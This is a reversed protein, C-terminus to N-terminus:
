NAMHWNSKINEEQSDLKSNFHINFDWSTSFATLGGSTSINNMSGGGRSTVKEMQSETRGDTQEGHVMDWSGYMMQDDNETCMHLIITDGPTKKKKLFFNNKQVTLPPTFPCFIPWFSFYCYCRDCTCYRLFLITYLWPKQYVKTFHHHRWTNKWKKLIKTKPVTLLTSPPIPPPSPSHLYLPLFYGLIFVLLQM